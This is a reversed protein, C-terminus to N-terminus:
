RPADDGGLSGGSQSIRFPHDIPQNDRYRYAGRIAFSFGHLTADAHRFMLQLSRSNRKLIFLIVVTYHSSPQVPAPTLPAFGTAPQPTLGDPSRAQGRREKEDDRPERLGAGGGLKDRKGFARRATCPLGREAPGLARRETLARDMQKLADDKGALDAVQRSSASACVSLQM